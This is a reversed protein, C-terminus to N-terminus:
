VFEEEHMGLIEGCLDCLGRGGNGSYIGGCEVCETKHFVTSQEGDAGCFFCCILGESDEYWEHRCTRM